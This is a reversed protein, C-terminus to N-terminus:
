DGPPSVDGREGQQPPKRLGCAIGIMLSAIFCMPVLIIGIAVGAFAGNRYILRAAVAILLGQILVLIVMLRANSM